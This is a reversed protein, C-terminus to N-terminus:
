MPRDTPRWIIRAARAYQDIKERTEAPLASWEADTLLRLDMGDIFTLLVGCYACVTFDGPMPMGEGTAGDLTQRCVPCAPTSKLKSTILKGL